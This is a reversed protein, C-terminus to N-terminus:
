FGSKKGMPTSKKEIKQIRKLCWDIDTEHTLPKTFLERVFSLNTQDKAVANALRDGLIYGAMRISEIEM